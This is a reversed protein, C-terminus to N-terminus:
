HFNGLLFIELELEIGLENKARKKVENIVSLYDKASANGKNEIFNHHKESIYADGIHFGTMKLKQEIIFGASGTPYGLKEKLDNPISQFVSGCSIAPQLKAKSITWNQYAQWAKQVDGELLNFVASLIIEASTHFRSKDYGAMLKDHSITEVENYKNLVKVSDVLESIFRSGGHINNFIAGGITGPIRGYWQLGTLKEEKLMTNIFFPLDVGSDAEVQIIKGTEEYYVDSFNYMTRGGQEETASDWRAEESSDTKTIQEIQKEQSNRYVTINKAMNRIVLGRIGSDSVLCNSGWGLMTIDVNLERANKIADILEQTSTPQFYIDAPGGIKLTTHKSLPENVLTHEPNLFKLLEKFSQAM